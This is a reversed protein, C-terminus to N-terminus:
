CVFTQGVTHKNCFFSIELVVRMLSHCSLFSQSIPFEFCCFPIFTTQTVGQRQKKKSYTHTNSQVLYYHRPTQLRDTYYSANVIDRATTQCDDLSGGTAFSEASLSFLLRWVSTRIHNPWTLCTGPDLMKQQHHTSSYEERVGREDTLCCVSVAAVRLEDCDPKLCCHSHLNNYAVTITYKHLM